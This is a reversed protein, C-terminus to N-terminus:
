KKHKKVYQVYIIVISGLVLVLIWMVESTLKRILEDNKGAIYWIGLLIANWTGAGLTTYFLFKWFHMRFIGAPISILQRVAPIFRWVLTTISGHREFYVESQIYHKESLLIYKGYKHILSKVVPKGLYMGLFYNISAWTMAGLTGAFFALYINMRGLSALYWAPIMAVESPFPIFSSEIMMMIFIGIYWMGEVLGLIIDILNHM